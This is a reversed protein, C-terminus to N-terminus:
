PYQDIELLEIEFFLTTYGQITLTGGAGYGLFYPICVEWRQGTCMQQLVASFGRVTNGVLFASKRGSDFVQGNYYKGTYNLIVSATEIPHVNGLTAEPDTLDKYYVGQPGDTTDLSKWAADVKIADYAAQNQIRWQETTDEKSNCATLLVTALLSFAIFLKNM